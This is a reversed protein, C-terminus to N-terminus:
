WGLADEVHDLAYTSRSLAIGIVDIRWVCNELHHDSLYALASKELKRQKSSQISEFAAETTPAHRARVEVFVIIDQQRAVIDIEGYACHWNSDLIEYGHARLHELAFQEGRQGIERTLRAANPKPRTPTL